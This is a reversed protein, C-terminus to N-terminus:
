KLLVKKLITHPCVQQEVMEGKNNKKNITFNQTCSVCWIIISKVTPKTKPKEKERKQAALIDKVQKPISSIRTQNEVKKAM